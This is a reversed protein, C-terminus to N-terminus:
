DVFSFGLTLSARSNLSHVHLISSGYHEQDRPQLICQVRKYKIFDSFVKPLRTIDSGGQLKLLTESHNGELCPRPMISIAWRLLFIHLGQNLFATIIYVREKLFTKSRTLHLPTITICSYCHYITFFLIDYNYVSYYFFLVKGIQYKSPSYLKTKDRKEAFENILNHFDISKAIENEIM